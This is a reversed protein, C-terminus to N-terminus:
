PCLVSPGTSLDNYANVGLGLSEVTGDGPNVLFWERAQAGTQAQGFTSVGYLNGDGAFGLQLGRADGTDTILEYREGPDRTLDYKFFEINSGSFSTSAYIIGTEADLAIDGFTFSKGPVFNQEFFSHTGNKGDSDFEVVSMNNSGNRIYWYKGEGWTAGYIQGPLGAAALHINESQDTGKFDYYYLNWGTSGSGLAFYLRNNEEDFALGNGSYTDGSLEYSILLQENDFSNDIIEIAYLGGVGNTGTVGYLTIEDVCPPPPEIGECVVAHIIFWAEEGEVDFTEKFSFKFDEYEFTNGYQGPATTSPATTGAYIHVEWLSYGHYLDITIEAVTGDWDITMDGVATGNNIDNLGAGTYLISEYVDPKTMHIVWGWRVGIDLAHLYDPNNNVSPNNRPGVWNEGFIHTGYAFATECDYSTEVCEVEIFCFTLNSLEQQTPTTLGGDSKIGDPYFYVNAGDQGGKVIVAGILYCKENIKFPEDLQFSVYIGDETVEVSLGDPWVGPEFDEYNVRDGCLFPNPDLGWAAAVDECTRNGGADGPASTGIIYPTIGGESILTSSQGIPYQSDGGDMWVDDGQCSVLVLAFAMAMLAFIGLFNLKRKM